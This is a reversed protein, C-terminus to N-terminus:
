QKDTNSHGHGRTNIFLLNEPDGMERDAEEDTESM